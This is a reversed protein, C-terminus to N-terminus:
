VAVASTANGSVAALPRSLQVGRDPEVDGPQGGQRWAVHGDPRVLVAGAPGIGYLAPWGPELIVRSSVGTAPEEASM